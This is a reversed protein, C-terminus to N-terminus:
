MNQDNPMRIGIKMRTVNRNKGNAAGQVSIDGGLPRPYKAKRTYAAKGKRPKVIRPKFLPDSLSKAAARAAGAQESTRGARASPKRKRM